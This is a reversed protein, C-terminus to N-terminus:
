MTADGRDAEKATDTDGPQPSKSDRKPTDVALKDCRVMRM